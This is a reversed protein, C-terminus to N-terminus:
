KTKASVCSSLLSTYCHGFGFSFHLLHADPDLICMSRLRCSRGTQLVLNFLLLLDDRFDFLSLQLQTVDAFLLLSVVEGNTTAVTVDCSSM